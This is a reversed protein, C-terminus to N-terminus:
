TNLQTRASITCNPQITLQPVSSFLCHKLSMSLLSFLLNFCRSMAELAPSQCCSVTMSTGTDGRFVFFMPYKSKNWCPYFTLSPFIGRVLKRRQLMVTSYYHRINMYWGELWWSIQFWWLLSKKFWRGQPLHYMEWFEEFTSFIYKQFVCELNKVASFCKRRM